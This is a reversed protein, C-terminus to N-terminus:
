VKVGQIYNYLNHLDNKLEEDLKRDFIFQIIKNEFTDYDYNNKICERAFDWFESETMYKYIWTYNKEAKYYTSALNPPINTGSQKSIEKTYKKAGSVTSTQEKLFRQIAKISSRMQLETMGKKTGVRGSKTWLNLTSSSLYDALQKVAFPENTESYRELRLIRQNAQKSLKKMQNFLSAQEPTMEIKISM